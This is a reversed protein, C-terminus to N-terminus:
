LMFSQTHRFDQPEQPPPSYGTNASGRHRSFYGHRHACCVGVICISVILCVVLTAVIIGQVNLDDIKMHNGACSKPSGVGNKAECHYRGTDNRTVTKFTLVGTHPNITYTSNAQPRVSLAKRDKFWTYTAAPIGHLDRCSLEVASGTVASSPIVCSPTQPPVLVTLTVNIEGLTVSDKPASVECRYVGADKQSVRSLTVTAGEIEARKAFEGRFHGEYYVFSVDKGIKKWEIRPEPEQETKFECSLMADSYERVSVKPERTSVSVPTVPLSQILIMSFLLFFLFM